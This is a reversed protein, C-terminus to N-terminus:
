LDIISKKASPAKQLLFDDVGYSIPSPGYNKIKLSKLNRLCPFDINWLNPVLYLIQLTKSSVTLSEMLALETLWNLLILPYNQEPYEIKVDINVHKISSLSNNSESLKQIPIGTFDFSCLNPTSLEFKYSFPFMKITLNVLTASSIFLKEGDHIECSDIILTNLCKFASFPEVFGNDGSSRFVFSRISLNTLVPFNLSNPFITRRWESVTINLSTLTHSSFYCLPFSEYCSGMLIKLVKVNHSFAYKMVRKLLHNNIHRYYFNLAYLSTKDDRLFLIRSVFENFGKVSKFYFSDLSIVPILKWLNKWRASLICTQVTQKTNLTSLIHILVCDPLDSIRERNEDSNYSRRRTKM